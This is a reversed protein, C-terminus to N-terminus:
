HSRLFLPSLLCRVPDYEAEPEPTASSAAGFSTSAMREALSLGSYSSSPGSQNQFRRLRKDRRDLEEQTDLNDASIAKTGNKKRKQPKSLSVAAVTDAEASSPFAVFCRRLRNLKVSDWDTTWLRDAQFADFIVAKLEKEVQPRNTDTCQAFTKNVFEKL